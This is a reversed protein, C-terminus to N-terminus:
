TAAGNIFVPSIRYAATLIGNVTAHRKAAMRAIGEICTFTDLNYSAKQLKEM